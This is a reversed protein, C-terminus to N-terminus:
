ATAFPPRSVHVSVLLNNLMLDAPLAQNAQIGGALGATMFVVEPRAAAFFQDVQTMSTLDPERPPLGVLNRHGAEQLRQLLARGVLTTGGAVFINTQPNM